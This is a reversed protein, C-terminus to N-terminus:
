SSCGAFWRFVRWGEPWWLTPSYRQSGGPGLRHVGEESVAGESVSMPDWQCGATTKQCPYHAPQDPQPKWPLNQGLWDLVTMLSFQWLCDALCPLIHALVPEQVGLFLLASWGLLGEWFDDLVSMYMFSKDWIPCQLWGQQGGKMWQLWLEEVDLSEALFFGALHM